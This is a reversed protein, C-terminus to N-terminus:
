DSWLCSDPQGWGCAAFRLHFYCPNTAVYWNGRPGNYLGETQKVFTPYDITQKNTQKPDGRGGLGSTAGLGQRVKQEREGTSKDHM